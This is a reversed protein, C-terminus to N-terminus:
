FRSRKKRSIKGIIWGVLLLGGGALLWKIM